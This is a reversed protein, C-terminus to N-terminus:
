KHGSAMCSQPRLHGGGSQRWAQLRLYCLSSCGKTSRWRPPEVWPLKQVSHSGGWANSFGTLLIIMLHNSSRWGVIQFIVTSKLGDTQLKKKRNTYGFNYRISGISVANKSRTVCGSKLRSEVWEVEWNLRRRSRSTERQARQAGAPASDASKATRQIRGARLLEWHRLARFQPALATSHEGNLASRQPQWFQQSFDEHVDNLAQLHVKLSFNGNASVRLQVKNRHKMRECPSGASRPQERFDCRCSASAQLQSFLSLNECQGLIRAHEHTGCLLLEREREIKTLTSPEQKFHKRKNFITCWKELTAKYMITIVM